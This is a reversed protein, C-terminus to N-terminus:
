RAVDVFVLSPSDPLLLKSLDLLVCVVLGVVVAAPLARGSTEEDVAMGGDVAPVSASVISLVVNLLCDAVDVDAAETLTVAM